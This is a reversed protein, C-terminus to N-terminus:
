TMRVLETVPVVREVYMMMVCREATANWRQLKDGFHDTKQWSWLMPWRYEWTGASVTFGPPPLDVKLVGGTPHDGSVMNLKVAPGFSRTQQSMM